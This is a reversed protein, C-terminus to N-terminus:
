LTTSFYRVVPSLFLPMTATAEKSSSCSSHSLKSIMMLGIPTTGFAWTGSSGAESVPLTMVSELKPPSSERLACM